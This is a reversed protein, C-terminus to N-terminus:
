LNAKDDSDFREEVRCRLVGKALRVNVLGGIAVADASRVIEGAPVTQTISYGRELVAMPNLAGLRSCLEAGRIRGREVSDGSPHTLAPAPTKLAQDLSPLHHIPASVGLRHRQWVLREKERRLKERCRAGLRGSLEELRM